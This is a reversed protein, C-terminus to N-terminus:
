VCLAPFDIEFTCACSAGHYTFVFGYNIKWPQEVMVEFVYTHMKVSEENDGCNNMLFRYSWVCSRFFFCSVQFKVKFDQICSKLWISAGFRTQKGYFVREGWNVTIDLRYLFRGLFRAISFM